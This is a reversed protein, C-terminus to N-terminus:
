HRICVRKMVEASGSLSLPPSFLIPLVRSYVSVGDGETELHHVKGGRLGVLGETM